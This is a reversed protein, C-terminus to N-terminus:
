VGANLIYMMDVRKFYFQIGDPSFTRYVMSGDPTDGGCSITNTVALCILYDVYGPTGGHSM